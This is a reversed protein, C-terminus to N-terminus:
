YILKWIYRLTPSFIWKFGNTFESNESSLSTNNITLQVKAWIKDCGVSGDMKEYRRFTLVAKKFVIPRLALRLLHTCCVNWNLKTSNGYCRVSRSINVIHCNKAGNLWLYKPDVMSFRSLLLAMKRYLIEKSFLIGAM